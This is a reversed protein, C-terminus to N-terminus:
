FVGRMKAKDVYLYGFEIIYITITMDVNISIAEYYCIKSQPGQCPKQRSGGYFYNSISCFIILPTPVPSALSALAKGSILATVLAM